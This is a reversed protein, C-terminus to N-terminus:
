QWVKVWDVYMSTPTSSLRDVEWESTLLSLILYEPVRSAAKTSSWLRRGDVYFVYSHPTWKVTFVHYGTWWQDNRPKLAAARSWVGGLKVHTRQSYLFTALGGKPYGRGFFESVDIESGGAASTPQMWFSGHQGRQRPYKVRASAVGYRFTYPDTGDVTSIQGNLFCSKRQTRTKCANRHPDKLVMLKLAGHGTLRAAKRSPASRQRSGIYAGENRTGWRATDLASGRFEDSFSTTWDFAQPASTVAAAGSRASTTADFAAGGTADGFWYATGDSRQSTLAV